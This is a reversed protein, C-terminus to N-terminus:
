PQAIAHFEPGSDHRGTIYISDGPKGTLRVEFHGLYGQVEINRGDLYIVDTSGLKPPEQMSLLTLKLPAAFRRCLDLAAKDGLVLVRGNSQYTVLSTPMTDFEEFTLLAQQVARTDIENM